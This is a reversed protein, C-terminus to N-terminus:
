WLDHMKWRAKHYKAAVAQLLGTQRKSAYMYNKKVAAAASISHSSHKCQAPQHRIGSTIIHKLPYSHTTSGTAQPLRGRARALGTATAPQALGAQLALHALVNVYTCMKGGDPRPHHAASPKRTGANRHGGASSQVARQHHAHHWASM